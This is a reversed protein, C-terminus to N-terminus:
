SIAPLTRHMCMPLARQRGGPRGAAGREREEGWAADGSRPNSRYKKKVGV